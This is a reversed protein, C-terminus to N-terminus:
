LLGSYGFVVLSRHYCTHLFVYRKLPRKAELNPLVVVIGVLEFHRCHFDNVRVSLLIIWGGVM